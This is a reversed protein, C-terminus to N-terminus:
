IETQTTVVESNRNSSAILPNARNTEINLINETNNCFTISSTQRKLGHSTKRGFMIKAESGFSLRGLHAHRDSM